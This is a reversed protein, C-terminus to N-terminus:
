RPGSGPSKRVTTRTPGIQTDRSAAVVDDHRALYFVGPMVESVPCSHRLETLVSEDNDVQEPDFPNYSM